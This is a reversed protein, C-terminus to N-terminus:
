VSFHVFQLHARLTAVRKWQSTPQSQERLRCRISRQSSGPGGGSTGQGCCLADSEILGERRGLSGPPQLRHPVSSAECPHPSNAKTYDCRQKCGYGHHRAVAGFQIKWKLKIQKLFIANTHPTWPAEAPRMPCM